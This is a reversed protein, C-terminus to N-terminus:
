KKCKTFKQVEKKGIMEKSDKATFFYFILLASGQTTRYKM